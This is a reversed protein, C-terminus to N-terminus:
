LQPPATPSSWRWSAKLPLALSRVVEAPLTLHGTFGTDIVANVGRGRSPAPASGGLVTLTM